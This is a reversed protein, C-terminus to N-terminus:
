TFLGYETKPEIPEGEDAGDKDLEEGLTTKKLLDMSSQRAKLGATAGQELERVREQHLQLEARDRQSVAETDSLQNRTM